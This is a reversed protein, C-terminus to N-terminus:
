FYRKESKKGFANINLNTFVSFSKSEGASTLLQNKTYIVTSVGIQFVKFFKPSYLILGLEDYLDYNIGVELINDFITSVGIDPSIPSGKYADLLLYPKIKILDSAYVIYGVRAFFKKQSLEIKRDGLGYSVKNFLEIFAIDAFFRESNYFFGFSFNEREREGFGFVM